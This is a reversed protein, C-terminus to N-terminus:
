RQTSRGVNSSMFPTAARCSAPTNSGAVPLPTCGASATPPHLPPLPPVLPPTMLGPPPPPPPALHRVPPPTAAASLGPTPTFLARSPRLPPPPDAPAGVPRGNISSCSMVREIHQWGDMRSRESRETGIIGPRDTSKVVKVHDASRLRVRWISRVPVVKSSPKSQPSSGSAPPAPPASADLCAM